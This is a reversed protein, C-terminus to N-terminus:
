DITVPLQAHVNHSLSSSMVHCSLMLTWMSLFTYSNRNSVLMAVMWVKFYLVKM